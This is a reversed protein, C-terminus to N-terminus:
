SLSQYCVYTYIVSAIVWIVITDTSFFIKLKKLFTVETSDPIINFSWNKQNSLRSISVIALGVIVICLVTEFVSGIKPDTITFMGLVYNVVAGGIHMGITTTISGTKVAFVGLFASCFLAYGIYSIDFCVFASVCTSVLIAVSDGFQRFMQLVFGRFFIEMCIPILVCNSVISIIQTATSTGNYCILHVADGGLFGYIGGFIYRCVRGLIVVVLMISVASVNVTFTNRRTPLVVRRPIKTVMFIIVAPILYRACDFLTLVVAIPPTLADSARTYNASYIIGGTSDPCVAQVFANRLVVIGLMIIMVGGLLSLCKFLAMKEAVDSKSKLYGEDVVYSHERVDQVFTYGYPNEDEGRWKAFQENYENNQNAFKHEKAIDKVYKNKKNSM